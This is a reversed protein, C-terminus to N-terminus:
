ISSSTLVYTGTAVTAGLPDRIEIDFTCTGGPNPISLGYERDVSLDIWTNEAAPSTTLADGTHSTYRVDYDTSAEGNPIVWDTASDIQALGGNDRKEVIGDAGIRVAAAQTIANTISEGDLNYTVRSFVQRLVGADNVWASDIERLVGADNVFIQTIERLTADDNVWVGDQSSAPLALALVLIALLRKM